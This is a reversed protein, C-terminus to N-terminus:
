RSIAFKMKTSNGANDKVLLTYRGNRTIKLKRTKLVASSVAIGNLKVQKIGTQKDKIKINVTKTYLGNNRIGSVVPKTKDIVITLSKKNGARDIAVIKYKGNKKFIKSGKKMDAVSMKKGNVAVSQIGKGVDSWKVTVNKNTKKSKTSITIDPKKNDAIGTVNMVCSLDGYCVTLRNEGAKVVYPNITCVKSAIKRTTGNEYTVTVTMNDMDVKEGEYVNRAYVAKMSVLKSPDGIGEVTFSATCGGASVQFVNKGMSVHGTQVGNLTVQYDSTSLKVLKGNYLAYVDLKDLNIDKGCYVSGGNWAATVSTYTVASVKEPGCLVCCIMIVLLFGSYMITRRM